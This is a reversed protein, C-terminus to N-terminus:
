RGPPYQALIAAISRRIKSEETLGADIEGEAAGRWVLENTGPDILDIVLTGVPYADITRISPFATSRYTYRYGYWASYSGTDPSNPAPAVAVDYAVLLDPSEADPSLGKKVLEAAVADRVRRDLLPEYATPNANTGAAEPEIISFTRYTQFNAGRDFDSTAMISPLCSSLGFLILFLM